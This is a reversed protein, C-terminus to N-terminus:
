LMGKARCALQVCRLELLALFFLQNCLRLGDKGPCDPLIFPLHLNYVSATTYILRFNDFYGIELSGKYLYGSFSDM